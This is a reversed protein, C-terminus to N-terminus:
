HMQLSFIDQNEALMNSGKNSGCNTSWKCAISQKRWSPKLTTNWLFIGGQHLWWRFLHCVTKGSVYRHTKNNQILHALYPRGWCSKCGDANKNCHSKGLGPLVKTEGPFFMLSRPEARHLHIVRAWHLHNQTHKVWFSIDKAEHRKESLFLVDPGHFVLACTM